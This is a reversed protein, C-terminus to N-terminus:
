PLDDSMMYRGFEVAYYDLRLLFLVNAVRSIQVCRIMSHPAFSPYQTDSTFAFM